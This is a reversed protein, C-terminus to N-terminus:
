INPNDTSINHFPIDKNSPVPCVMTFVSKRNKYKRQLKESNLLKVLALMIRENESSNHIFISSFLVKLM